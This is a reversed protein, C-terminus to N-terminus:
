PIERELSEEFTLIRVVANWQVAAVLVRRSPNEYKRMRPPSPRTCHFATTLIGVEPSDSAYWRAFRQSLIKEKESGAFGATVRPRAALSKAGRLSTGQRVWGRCHGPDRQM